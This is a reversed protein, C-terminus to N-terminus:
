ELNFKFFKYDLDGCEVYVTHENEYISDVLDSAIDTPISTIDLFCFDNEMLDFCGAIRLKVQQDDHFLHNTLCDWVPKSINDADTGTNKQFFYYVIGYLEKTFRGHRHNYRCCASRVSGLYAQGSNSNLNWSNYSKPQRNFLFCKM